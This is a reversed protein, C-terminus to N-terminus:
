KLTYHKTVTIDITLTLPWKPGEAKLVNSNSNSYVDFHGFQSSELVRGCHTM